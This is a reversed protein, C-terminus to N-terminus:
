EELIMYEPAFLIEIHATKNSLTTYPKVQLINKSSSNLDMKRLYIQYNGTFINIISIPKYTIGNVVPCEFSSFELEKVSTDTCSFKVSDFGKLIFLDDNKNKSGNAM